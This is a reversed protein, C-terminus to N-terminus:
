ATTQFQTLMIRNPKRKQSATISPEPEYAPETEEYSDAESQMIAATAEAGKSRTSRTSMRPRKTEQINEDLEPAKRKPSGPNPAPAPTKAFRLLEDRSKVFADVAERLAWNGRLKAEQDNARCLPCKGDQSLCRRICLSCFTHNCSTIMPSNYFDKCIHCRFAQEVHELGALPTGKWDTPDPINFEEDHVTEMDPSPHNAFPSTQAIVIAIRQVTALSHLTSALM